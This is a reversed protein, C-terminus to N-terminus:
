TFKVAVIVKAINKRDIFYGHGNRTTGNCTHGGIFKELFEITVHGPGFGGSRSSLSIIKGIRGKLYVTTPHDHPEVTICVFDNVALTDENM